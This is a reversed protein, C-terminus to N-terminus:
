NHILFLYSKTEDSEDEISSINALLAINNFLNFAKRKM